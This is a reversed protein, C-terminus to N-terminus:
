APDLVPKAPLGGNKACGLEKAMALSFSHAVTAYADKLAEVNGEPETPMGWHEVGITVHATSTSNSFRDSRCAFWVSARNAAALTREGMKLVTFDSAPTGTPPADALGWTVRVAFDSTGDDTYIRCVDDRGDTAVPYAEVLDTAARAVTSREATTGFRSSGTIVKLAKSAQASVADGGCLQTGVLAKDATEDDGDGGCGTAGLCLLGAVATTLLGVRVPRRSIVIRM